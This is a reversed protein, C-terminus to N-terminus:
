NLQAPGTYKLIYLGGTLRDIAYILGNEDVYVHNMQISHTSNGAPAEPVYFGIEEIAPPAHPIPADVFGYIRVGSNFLTAVFTNQLHASTSGPFNFALNHMGSRGGRKCLEAANQPFPARGVIVPNSEREIDVLWTFKPVDRCLPQNTEEIVTALGRSFIPQVTHTFGPFPPQFKVQSVLKPSFKSARGERVDALGSIDLIVQGGDIYGIYARDPHEPFVEISHARYGHDMPQARQPLCGPLCSDGRQTGPLWWRGVERPHRRDRVDAIVYFQDDNPNSPNSDNMGTALHAFEGDVFWLWHVGRSNPGSTDFFSFALDQVTKAKKIQDLNSVDLLWMGAKANGAKDVQDAVALVNGSLGLSNCRTIGPTPSPLQNVLNPAEPRTVDVVSLCTTQGEHAIYLLRHGDPRQQLAIGEGGDGHGNLDNHSVLSINRQEAATQTEGYHPIALALALFLLRRTFM